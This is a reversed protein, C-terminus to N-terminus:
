YSGIYQMPNVALDNQRIEFHLHPGTSTPKGQEDKGTSGVLGIQQNASINQYVNVNIKNLHGYASTILNGNSDKGHSIKIYNGYGDYWGASIVQGDAPAIVPANMNAAIDIGHHFIKKGQIPHYRWGFPDSISGSVPKLWKGSTVSGQYTTPVAKELVKPKDTLLALTVTTILKGRQRESIVGKHKIQVVKYLSNYQKMSDSLLEVAQDIKLGPEFLMDAEVFLNARRPSGLLGSSDTIVLIDGPLVEDGALISLEGKDVVIEYGGYERGLLDLTQGIFTRNRPLPPITPSIYGLKVDPIDKIASHIVDEIKTGKSVTQNMFSFSGLKISILANAQTIWDVSGSPKQSTCEQITGQFVLPMTNQYGAYFNLIIYKKGIEYVDVGLKIRLTEPLNYFQFAGRCGNSSLAGLDIDLNCTVPYEITVKEEGVFERNEDLKGIFFEARYNRGWKEM